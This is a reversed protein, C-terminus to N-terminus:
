GGEAESNVGVWPHSTKKGGWLTPELNTNSSGTIMYGFYTIFLPLFRKM